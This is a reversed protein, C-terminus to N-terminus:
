PLEVVRVTTKRWLEEIVRQYERQSVHSSLKARVDKQTQEDFPKVGANQRETTKVIHYGTPTPILNSVQGAALTFVTTELERPLIEGRKHGIGEGDRLASDGHGHKKVLEVFDSGAVAQRHLDEAYKKAEAPTAFRNFSVFLDLWKVEDEVRFEDSHTLYYQHVEALTVTAKKDKLLQGLYIDVMSKREIQRQLGKISMGQSRLAKAFDAENTIHNLKRFRNLEKEASQRSEAQLKDILEPKNKRLKALFDALILERDILSRLSEKFLEKERTERETGTLKVYEGARQRVMQWVEDDTIVSDTGIVAVVRLQTDARDATPGFATAPIVHSPVPNVASAPVPAGVPVVSAPAASGAPIVPAPYRRYSDAESPAQPRAIAPGPHSESYTASESHAQAPNGGGSPSQGSTPKLGTSTQPTAACGLTAAIPMVHAAYRMQRVLFMVADM